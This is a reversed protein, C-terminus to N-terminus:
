RSPSYRAILFLISREGPRGTLSGVRGNQDTGGAVKGVDVFAGKGQWTSTRTIPDPMVPKDHARVKNFLPGVPRRTRTSSARSTHEPAVPLHTNEWGLATRETVHRRVQGHMKKRNLFPPCM